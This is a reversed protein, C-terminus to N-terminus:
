IHVLHNWCRFRNHNIQQTLSLVSVLIHLNVFLVHYNENMESLESYLSFTDLSFLKIKM